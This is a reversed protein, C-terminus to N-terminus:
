FLLILSLNLERRPQLLNPAISLISLPVIIYFQWNIICTIHMDKDVFINDVNLDPHQLAFRPKSRQSSNGPYSNSLEVMSEGLMEGALIYNIRNESSNIKLYTTM